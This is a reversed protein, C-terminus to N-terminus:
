LNFASKIHSWNSRDVTFVCTGRALPATANPVIGQATLWVRAVEGADRCSHDYNIIRRGDYEPVSITVRSGRTDTAPVFKATIAISDNM